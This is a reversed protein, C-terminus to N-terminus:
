LKSNLFLNTTKLSTPKSKFLFFFLYDSGLHVVSALLYKSFIGRETRLLFWTIIVVFFMFQVELLHIKVRRIDLDQSFYSNFLGNPFPFYETTKLAMSVLCSLCTTTLINFGTRLGLILLSIRIKCDTTPIRIKVFEIM